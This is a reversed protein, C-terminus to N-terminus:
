RCARDPRVGTFLWKFKTDNDQMARLFAIENAPYGFEFVADPKLADINNVLLTYDTTNGPVGRDLVLKIEPTAALAKRM